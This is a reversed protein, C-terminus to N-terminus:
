KAIQNLRYNTPTTHYKESFSKTFNAVDNFGCDFAIESIRENSVLLLEAAKELRRNKIYSAPTDNYLKAFERKFSSISLNTQQALEEVSLQSFLNAEVIQKFTFTTPSFLQSLIIQVSDANRTQSLLLIIEKLKLILIDESLLTPNEFYFLLGEIYKQILFDNNIKESSKNSIVNEPKHLLQPLDKDYIKKLVDAYFTVIVIECASESNQIENGSNLCNLFLSYNSPIDITYDEKKYLLMGEKVFLFCAQDNVPFDYKAPAKLVIKQLLTKGFLDFKKYDNIM